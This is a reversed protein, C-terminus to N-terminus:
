KPRVLTFIERIRAYQDYGLRAVMDLKLPDIHGATFADEHVHIGVVKGLTLHNGYLPNTVPLDLTQWHVCELQVFSGAIRPPKIKESPLLPLDVLSLESQGYPLTASTLNMAEVQAYSVMNVVFEGTEQINRLTDKPVRGKEKSATSIMIMPPNDAVANFYSFPAINIVGDVGCTTIWAIPRPIVCAKFPTPKAKFYDPDQTDFFM